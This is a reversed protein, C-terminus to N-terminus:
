DRPSPSTYLLCISCLQHMQGTVVSQNGGFWVFVLISIQFKSIWICWSAIIHYKRYQKIILYSLHYDNYITIFTWNVSQYDAVTYIWQYPLSPPSRFNTRIKSFRVNNVLARWEFLILADMRYCTQWILMNYVPSIQLSCMEVREKDVSGVCNLCDSLAYWTIVDYRSM